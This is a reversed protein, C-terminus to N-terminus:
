KKKYEKITEIFKDFLYETDKPGPTAEPHFQCSSYPLKKHKIGENTGDNANRFYPEWDDSLKKEDVAYGHNQSTIYCKQTFVDICPQNQGRHGYKLKYTDAGSALALLQNGLCIGWIPKKDTLANKLNLITEKCMKPNGPGNSIFLGDYDEKSYDYNWPVRIVTVDRKLFNWIIQNKVGCDVMVIRINGKKENYVIKEKISVEDVLNVKDPDFLAVDKDDIIIKGLMVGKERIKKTLARTDVGYIGPVMEDNLWKGLTKESKWHNYESTYDCVILGTIHIKDSEFNKDIGFKDLDKKPVGYNGIIPYTLVLIQGKYSPDTLSEPYGAMSTNFVVEGSVSKESGFSYGEFISGDELILKAKKSDNKM